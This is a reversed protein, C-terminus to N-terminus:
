RLEKVDDRGGLGRESEELYAEWGKAKAEWLCCIRGHWYYNEPGHFEGTDILSPRWAWADKIEQELVGAARVDKLTEALMIRCFTHDSM